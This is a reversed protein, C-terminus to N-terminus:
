PACERRFQVIGDSDVFTKVPCPKDASATATPAHAAHRRITTSVPAAMTTTSATPRVVSASTSTSTNASAITMASAPAAASGTTAIAPADRPRLKVAGFAVGAAAVVGIMVVAVRRRGTRPADTTMSVSSIQSADSPKEVGSPTGLDERANRELDAVVQRRQALVHGAVTEIWSAVKRASAPPVAAEIAAAMDRATAYRQAPDRALAKLVVADLAKPARSVQSPPVVKRELVNIATEGENDSL